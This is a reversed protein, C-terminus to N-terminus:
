NCINYYVSKEEIKTTYITMQEILGNIVNELNNLKEEQLNNNMGNMENETQSVKSMLKLAREFLDEARQKTNKVTKTKNNLEKQVEQYKSQLDLSDDYTKKAENRTDNSAKQLRKANNYNNTINNQLQGM